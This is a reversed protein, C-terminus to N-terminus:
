LGDGSTVSKTVRLICLTENVFRRRAFLELRFDRRVLETEFAASADGFTSLLLLAMGGPTLHDALHEAFRQPIDRGRWAADRDDKPVGVLFPPNFLVIDFREDQVPEFLDGQIFDVREDMGSMMANIRSCCIAAPNVDTGVVRSSYQAAVLACVGSGTGLDLLATEPTILSENLQSAFWAGTRLLRPNAVSPLVLIPMSGVRELRFDDYRHKGTLKYGLTLVRGLMSGIWGPQEDELFSTYGLAEAM